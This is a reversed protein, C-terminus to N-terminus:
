VGHCIQSFKKINLRLRDFFKASVHVFVGIWVECAHDNKQKWFKLDFYHFGKPKDNETKLHYLPLNASTWLVGCHFKWPNQSTKFQKQAKAIKDIKILM